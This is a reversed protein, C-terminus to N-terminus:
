GGMPLQTASATQGPAGSGAKVIMRKLIARMQQIEPGLAPLAQGLEDVKSGLDRIKGMSEAVQDPGPTGSPGRGGGNAMMEM